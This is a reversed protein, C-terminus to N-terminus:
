DCDVTHQQGSGYKYIPGSFTNGNHDQRFSIDQVYCVGNRNALLYASIERGTVVGTLENRLIKWDSTSIKAAKYKSEWGKEVALNQMVKLLKATLAPDNKKSKYDAFSEGIKFSSGEDKILTVEEECVLNDFGYTVTFKVKNEGVKLENFLNHFLIRKTHTNVKLMLTSGDVKPEFKPHDLQFDKENGEVYARLIFDASLTLYTFESRLYPLYLMGYIDKSVNLSNLFTTTDASELPIPSYSFVLRGAYARNVPDAIKARLEAEVEEQTKEKKAQQTNVPTEPKTNQEPTSVSQSNAPSNNEQSAAPTNSSNSEEEEKATLKKAKSNLEHTTQKFNKKLNGVQAQSHNASISLVLIIGAVAYNLRKM